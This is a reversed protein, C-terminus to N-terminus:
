FREEHEEGVDCSTAHVKLLPDAHELFWGSIVNIAEHYAVTKAESGLERSERESAIVHEIM